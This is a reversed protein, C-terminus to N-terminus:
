YAAPERQPEYLDVPRERGKVRFQGRHVFVFRGGAAECALKTAASVLVRAVGKTSGEIRSALNVTDGIATYEMRAESGLFGVVAPGSHIGIGIDFEGLGPDLAQLERRFGDLVQTMELAAAVAQRAHGPAETPANWFAMIADGIFKDLTGGHRFIVEVQRSFYRNLLDVVAEPSRNESLTTFGRIDSFLVSIERTEPKRERDLEGSRVLSDVVRPDLFRGFLGVTAERERRELWQSEVTLLGFGLWALSLAAGVPAYLHQDLALQSAALAALSAATLTLGCRVPSVRRHFAMGLGALLALLLPWRVPLDRLWDGGRLNAIATTLVYVGPTLGALPTPRMDHLGSATAGVLIINDRLTPALVPADTGLDHLLDAYSITRPPRGYWNMRVRELEPLPTGSGRAVAAALGPLRWGAVPQFLRAHRGIGDSDAEFNILGGQWNKPELVLPMLLTAGAEPDADPGAEAGFSPPLAALPATRGASLRMSAFYLNDMSAAIERLVADSDPRFADAENFLIDFVVAKPRWRALGDLLEGHIARPWPWTGAIDNLDELSKQDIAVVVIDAPPERGAAHWRLQLDGLRHDLRDLWGSLQLALAVLALVLLPLRIPAHKARPM